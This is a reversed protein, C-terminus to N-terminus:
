MDYPALVLAEANENESVVQVLFNRRDASIHLISGEGLIEIGETPDETTMVVLSGSPIDNIRVTAGNNINEYAASVSGDSNFATYGIGMAISAMM